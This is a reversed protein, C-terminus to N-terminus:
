KIKLKRIQKALRDIKDGSLDAGMVMGIILATLREILLEYDKVRPKRSSQSTFAFPQLDKIVTDYIEVSTKM